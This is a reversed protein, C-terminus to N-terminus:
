REGNEPVLPVLHTECLPVEEESELFKTYDNGIPCVYKKAPFLSPNGALSPSRSNPRSLYEEFWAQIQPVECVLELLANVKATEDLREDNLLQGLPVAVQQIHEPNLLKSLLPRLHRAAEMAEKETFASDSM